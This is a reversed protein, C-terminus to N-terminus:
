GRQLREVDAAVGSVSDGADTRRPELIQYMELFRVETPAVRAVEEKTGNADRGALSCALFSLSTGATGM